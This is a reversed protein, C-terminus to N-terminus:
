FLSPRPSNTPSSQASQAARAQDEIIVSDISQYHGAGELVSSRLAADRFAAPVQVEERIDWISAREILPEDAPDEMLTLYGQSSARSSASSRRRMHSIKNKTAAAASWASEILRM